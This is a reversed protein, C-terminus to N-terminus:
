WGLIDNIIKNIQRTKDPSVCSITMYDGYRAYCHWTKVNTSFAIYFESNYVNQFIYYDDDHQATRLFKYGTLIEEIQKIQENTM